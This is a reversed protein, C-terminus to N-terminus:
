YGYSQRLLNYNAQTTGNPLNDDLKDILGTITNTTPTMKNYIMSNTYGTCNDTINIAEDAPLTTTSVATILGHTTNYANDDRIDHLFGSPFYGWEFITRENEAYWSNNFVPTADLSHRNPGYRRHAYERGLYYAWSEMLACRGSGNNTSDGYGGNNVVYQINAEWMPNGVKKYHIVHAFEHYAVEKIRDATYNQMNNGRNYCFYVDAVFTGTPNPAIASLGGVTASLFAGITIAQLSGSMQMKHLMPAAGAGQFDGNSGAFSHILIQLNNHTTNIGDASAYGNFDYLANNITAASYHKTEHHSVDWDRLYSVNCNNLGGAAVNGILHTGPFAFEFVNGAKVEKITKNWSIFIVSFYVPLRGFLTKYHIKNNSKFCGNANTSPSLRQFFPGVFDAMVDNVGEFAVSGNSFQTEEVKICGSPERDDSNLSCICANTVTSPPNVNDAPGLTTPPPPPPLPDIPQPYLTGWNVGLESLHQELSNSTTLLQPPVAEGREPDGPYISSEGALDFAKKAVVSRLDLLYINDLLEFSSIPIPKNAPMLTYIPPMGNPEIAPDRMYDGYEIIEYDLPFTYVPINADAIAKLDDLTKPILKIYKHTPALTTLKNTSLANWANMVNAVTLPQNYKRGLQTYKYGTTTIGGQGFVYDNSTPLTTSFTQLNANKMNEKRQKKCANFTLMIAAGFCIATITVLLWRKNM